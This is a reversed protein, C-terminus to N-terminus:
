FYSPSVSFKMLSYYNIPWYRSLFSHFVASVAPEWRRAVYRQLSDAQCNNKLSLSVRDISLMEIISGEVASWRVSHGSTMLEGTLQNDVLEFGGSKMPLINEWRPVFQAIRM